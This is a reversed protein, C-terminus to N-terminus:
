ELHDIRQQQSLITEDREIIIEKLEVPNDSLSKQASKM